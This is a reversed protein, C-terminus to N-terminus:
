GWVPFNLSSGNAIMEQLYYNTMRSEGLADLQTSFMQETTSQIQRQYQATSNRVQALYLDASGAEMSKAPQAKDSKETKPEEFKKAFKGLEEKQAFLDNQLKERYADFEEASIQNADLAALAEQMKDAFKQAPTKLEEMIADIGLKSRAEDRLKKAEDEKAQALKEDAKRELESYKENDILNEELAQTLTEMTKAYEKEAESLQEQDVESADLLERLGPIAAIRAETLEKEKAFANEVASNYAEQTILGKRLKDDLDEWLADLSETSDVKGLADSFSSLSEDSYKQRIRAEAEELGSIVGGFLEPQESFTERLKAIDDELAEEQTKVPTFDLSIGLDKELKARQDALAKEKADAIGQSISAIKADIAAIDEDVKARDRLKEYQKILENAKDEETKQEDRISQMLRDAIENYEGLTEKYASTAKDIEEREAKAAGVKAYDAIQDISWGAERYHEVSQGGITGTKGGAIKDFLAQAEDIKRQANDLASDQVSFAGYNLVDNLGRIATGATKARREIEALSNSLISSQSVSKQSTAAFAALGAGIAAIAIGVPGCALQLAKMGVSATTAATGVGALGASAAPATQLVTTLGTKLAPLAQSISSLGLSTTQFASAAASAAEAVQILSSRFGSTEDDTREISALLSAFQGSMQSISGVAQGFTQIARQRVENAEIELRKTKEIEAQEKKNAEAIAKAKEEIEKRAEATLRIFEHQANYVAGFEDVYFGLAQEIKNLDAVLGGNAAHLKGEEDVYQGLKIQALSLGEVLKGNANIFRGMEDISMGLAKQSKSLTKIFKGTVADIKSELNDTSVTVSVGNSLSNSM